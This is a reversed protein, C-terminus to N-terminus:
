RSDKILHELEEINCGEILADIVNKKEILKVFPSMGIRELFLEIVDRQGYFGAWYYAHGFLKQEENL